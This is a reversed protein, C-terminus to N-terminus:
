KGFYKQLMEVLENKNIPKAIYDTCGAKIAKESEGTLGYATQAIIVVEKNFQRIQNTAEYGSMEPMRIDMLVLDIDPNERCIEVAEVGTKAKLVKKIFSKIFSSIVMESVEDDEAILIKLKRVNDTNSDPLLEKDATTEVASVTTFPLTFYFTSGKGEESEVWIRGGLMEIYAKTIALGLGAGQYAMKDAIDAQIFREFIAEQRDKPIGIGTDKVYFELEVSENYKKLHYGFEIAGEKTYKIANKVLNTLIAYLKERDTKIIAEKQPLTNKLSFKIGKAEVEPKFFTYIYETQENIMAEKIDAAMLGSEIKSIDIIDNIINLMRKGSKGIMDICKQQETGTLDPENLLEAFGLIGNMPTRIEHSMNALFASKLRDSEEAKEKAALLDQIFKKRQIGMSIQSSVFKLIEKSGDDYADPNHYDQVALVGIIDSGSFLPVGLWVESLTGVQDIEGSKILALIASKKLLLTEGKKIVLGTVSKNARWTEIQDKEDAEFPTSLMDNAKDYFAIYFNTTDILKNLLTKISAVLTETNESVLSAKAIQFLVEEKIEKQKQDTIDVATSLIREVGDIVLTRLTVLEWFIEGTVKRSKWEFAQIDERAAKQIWEKADEMSYPPEMWFDNQQLAELSDFGYSTYATNNANIIEGTDIDHIMISVPSKAFITEFHLQNEEAKEKAEILEQNTQNLEENQVVIEENQEQLMIEIQKRETIDRWTTHLVTEGKIVVPMLSVEVIFKIGDANVHTWDFRHLGKQYALDIMEHAAEDSKRGNPQFVPSISVPPKFLFQERTLKLLDLTAQNCEVFVGAKDILLIPDSSAEFLQRFILASEEAKEKAKRLEEEDQKRLSIDQAAGWLGIITNNRDKVAEGRVWMWGNTGDKKVTKLELEYPIGSESTKALSTSLIEWSEPTFLKMHETYPPPPLAPDFGYMKYLEKTWVVENTEVDLYWSGLHAIEQAKILEIENREAKEKAKILANELAKQETIDKFVCYTQRFKGEPTYGVCGEFSVYIYTNDKRRLKFQVDSVYGRKKFAPFNIRFHEVFDPHLFDGYWKGIVEDREYGLTKSWMPNIDIFCGNEDLSQYSLPANDYMARYKEESVEAEQKAILLQEFLQRRETVDTFNLIIGRIAKDALLNTFTTEIWRYEGDKRKFRYNLTPKQTPDIMITELAKYVMPLDDPHTYEDGSHGIVQKEDYGFLRAANPSVYTFKGSEDLIVVGDPANEILSRFHQESAEIKEKAEILERNAQNLEENQVAMEENQAAIEESKEQIVREAQKRDTIDIASAALYLPNGTEDNILTGSMLMPFETGERNVHWVETPPFYGAKIMNENLSGVEELQKQNHFLSLNQGSLEEPTYGHINAFFQNIYIINGKLDAIAKGYVANDAIAKFIELEKNVLKLNRENEKLALEALKRETIVETYAIMGGISKDSHYWPRCEWRSYTISGDPRIFYDDDNSLVEGQLAKEHANRWKEPMEPFVEYHNKGIINKDKVDYDELFRDSVILLNMQNDFVAIANPNHKLIYRTKEESEEIKEIAKQLENNTQLLEENIAEYEENKLQLNIESEETKQKAEILEKNAQNLEENQVAMEENQAAIEENKEQLLRESQKRETIDIVTTIFYLPEGNENRQISVSVDTWIYNGKKSIYRKEFRASEKEGKLLAELFAQIIPIEDKPTIDQWKKHQLEERSYGLMDCFAQNVNIEGTPLTISKGANAAVFVSEFKNKSESIQKNLEVQEAKQSALDSILLTMALLFDMAAKVKEESVIPIKSLADLYQNEDFGYKEAQNKFFSLDPKEFFFQGSFLNAIHEGNIIIPVAVDILGNLCKYFHYKEGEAMKGALITDSIKCRESTATNSRHFETCIQRWGSKSLINGDLDLIATVFGTSKNFGELLADVKVFDILHMINKKMM